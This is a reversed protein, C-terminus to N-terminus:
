FIKLRYSAQKASRYSFNKFRYDCNKFNKPGSLGGKEKRNMIILLWMDHGQFIKSPSLLVKDM